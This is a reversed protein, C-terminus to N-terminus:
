CGTDARRMYESQGWIRVYPKKRVRTPRKRKRSEGLGHDEGDAEDELEEDEEDENEEEEDLLEGNGPLAEARPTGDKDEGELRRRKSNRASTPDPRTADVKPVPDPGVLARLVGKTAPMKEDMINVLSDFTMDTVNANTMDKKRLHLVRSKLVDEAEQEVLREVVRRAGAERHKWKRLLAGAAKSTLWARVEDQIIQSETKGMSNLFSSLRIGESRLLERCREMKEEDVDSYTRDVSYQRPGDAGDEDADSDESDESPQYEEWDDRESTRPSEPSVSLLDDGMFGKWFEITPTPPAQSLVQQPPAKGYRRGKKDRSPLAVFPSDPAKRRRTSVGPQVKTPTSPIADGNRLPIEPSTPPPLAEQLPMEPSTIPATPPTANPVPPPGRQPNNSRGGFVDQSGSSRQSPSVGPLPRISRGFPGM